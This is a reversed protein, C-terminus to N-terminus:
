QEREHEREGALVICIIGPLNRLGLVYARPESNWVAQYHWTGDLRRSRGLTTLVNDDPVIKQSVDIPLPLVAVGARCRIFHRRGYRLWGKFYSASGTTIEKLTRIPTTGDVYSGWCVVSGAESLACSLAGASDIATYRGTPADTQGQENHGWCGVEADETIACAHAAGVSIATYRGPPVDLPTATPTPTATSAPTAVPTPTSTPVPTPTSTAIPAPTPTPSPAVTPSPSPTATPPAATPSPPATPTPPPTSAAAPSAEAPATPTTVPPTDEGGECALCVVALVMATALAVVRARM